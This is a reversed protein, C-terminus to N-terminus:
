LDSDCLLIHFLDLVIGLKIVHSWEDPGPSIYFDIRYTVLTSIPPYGLLHDPQKRFKRLM